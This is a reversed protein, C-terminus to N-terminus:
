CYELHKWSHELGYFVECKHYTENPWRGNLSGSLSQSHLLFFVLCLTFLVDGAQSCRHGDTVDSLNENATCTTHHHIWWWLILMCVYWPHTHTRTQIWTLRESLDASVLSESEGRQINCDHILVWKGELELWCDVNSFMFVRCHLDGGQM